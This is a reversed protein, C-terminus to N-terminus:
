DRRRRRLTRHSRRRRVRAPLSSAAAPGNLKVHVLADRFHPFSKIGVLAEALCHLLETSGPMDALARMATHAARKHRGERLLEVIKDLQAALSTPDDTESRDSLATDPRVSGRKRADVHLRTARSAPHAPPMETCSVCCSGGSASVSLLLFREPKRSLRGPFTPYPHQGSIEGLHNELM